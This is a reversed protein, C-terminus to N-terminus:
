NRLETIRRNQTNEEQSDLEQRVEACLEQVVPLEKAWPGSLRFQRPATMGGPAARLCGRVTHPDRGRVPLCPLSLHLERELARQLDPNPHHRLSLKLKADKESQGTGRQAEM